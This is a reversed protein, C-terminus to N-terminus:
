YKIFITVNRSGSDFTGGAGDTRGVTRAKLTQEVEEDSEGLGLMISTKTVMRGGQAEKARALVSLTQRYKARSSLCILHKLM